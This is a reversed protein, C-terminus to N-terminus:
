ELWRADELNLWGNPGPTWDLSRSAGYVEYEVYGFVVPAEQRIFQQILGYRELRENPDPIRDAEDLLADLTPNAYGGYNAEGQSHLKPRISGAPDLSSNGWEALWAHRRGLLIQERLEQWTDWVRLTVDVGVEKFMERYLRGVREKSRPVDLEFAFGNPYGAEALLERARIPDYGYLAVDPDYGLTVPSLMTAVAETEFQAVERLLRETDVALNLAVRVRQDNFPPGGHDFEMFHVRSRPVVVPKARSSARLRWFAGPPLNLAVHVEGSLVRRLREEASPIVEFQIRTVARPDEPQAVRQLIVRNGRDWRELRFPGTGVPQGQRDLAAAPEALLRAPFGAWPERLRVVVLGGSVSVSEIPALRERAPSPYGAIGTPSTLRNLYQQVIAPTLTQGAHTVVGESLAIEWTLPDRARVSAAADATLFAGDKDLFTRYILRQVTETLTHGSYRAPDLTIIDEPVAVVLTRAAPVGATAPLAALLLGGGLM